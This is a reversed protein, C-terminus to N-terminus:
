GTILPIVNGCRSCKGNKFGVVKANFGNRRVIVNGCRPCFTNEYSEDIVNGLYPYLIGEDKATNYMDVLSEFSTAPVDKMKYYPHFRSFYVPVDVGLFEVVWRCFSVIEEISDNNKPIVLYTLELHIGVDIATKCTELVPDLSGSCVKKYFNNSFSKVDVNIADLFPSIEVLPEKNIYGNSVFVTYLGHGKAIKACDFAYEYWITPENYTWAIGKCGHDLALGVADKPSIFNLSSTLPDATSIHYNQCHLCKFNCCVSGLSLVFSGPYFHNLPKKEIPDDAVGSSLAYILSYLVGGENKRVNCFGRNGDSIMCYHPCLLCKVSNNEGKEWFMAEKKMLVKIM